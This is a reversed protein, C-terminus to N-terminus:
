IILSLKHMPLSLNFSILIIIFSSLEIYKCIFIYVYVIDSIYIINCDYIFFLFKTNSLISSICVILLLSIYLFIDKIYLKEYISKLIQNIFFILVLCFTSLEDISHDMGFVYM